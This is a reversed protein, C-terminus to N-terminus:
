GWITSYDEERLDDISSNDFANTGLFAKEVHLTCAHTAPSVYAPLRTGLKLSFSKMFIKLKLQKNEPKRAFIIFNEHGHM